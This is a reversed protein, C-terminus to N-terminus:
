ETVEKELSLHEVALIHCGEALLQQLSHVGFLFDFQQSHYMPTYIPTVPHFYSLPFKPQVDPFVESLGHLSAPGCKFTLLLFQM